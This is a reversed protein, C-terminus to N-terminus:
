SQVHTAGQELTEMTSKACIDKQLFHQKTENLISYYKLRLQHHILKEYFFCLSFNLMYLPTLQVRWFYIIIADNFKTVLPIQDLIM